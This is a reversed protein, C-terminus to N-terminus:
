ARLRKRTSAILLKQPIIIMIMIFKYKKNTKCGNYGNPKRTSIAPTLQNPTSVFLLIFLCLLRLTSDALSPVLLITLNNIVLNSINCFLLTVTSSLWIALVESPQTSAFLLIANGLSSNKKHGWPTTKRM